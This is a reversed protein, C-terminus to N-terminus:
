LFRRKLGYPNCTLPAPSVVPNKVAVDLTEKVVDVMTKQHPHYPLMGIAFPYHWLDFSPQLGRHSPFIAAQNMLILLIGCPPTILGQKRIEKQMIHEIRPHM